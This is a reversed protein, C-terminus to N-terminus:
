TEPEVLPTAVESVVAKFKGNAGRPIACTTQLVVQVPGVRDRLRRVLM